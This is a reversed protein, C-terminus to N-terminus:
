TETPFFVFQSAAPGQQLEDWIRPAVVKLVGRPYVTGDDGSVQALPGKYLVRREGSIMPYLATQPM